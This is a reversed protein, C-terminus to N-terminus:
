TNVRMSSSEMSYRISKQSQVMQSEKYLSELNSIDEQTINAKGVPIKLKKSNPNIKSSDSNIKAVKRRVFEQVFHSLLNYEAFYQRRAYTKKVVSQFDENALAQYKAMDEIKLIKSQLTKEKDEKKQQRIRSEKLEQAVFELPPRTDHLIKLALFKFPDKVDTVAQHVPSGTISGTKRRGRMSDSKHFSDNEIMQRSGVSGLGPHSGLDGRRKMFDKGAPAHRGYGSANIESEVFSQIEQM